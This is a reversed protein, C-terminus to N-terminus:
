ITIIVGNPGANILKTKELYDTKEFTEHVHGHIVIQPKTKKIAQKVGKNGIHFGIWDQKTRHPPEHVIMIKKELQSIPEHAKTLIETITEDSLGWQGLSTGAHGYFGVNKIIMYYGNLDHVNEYIQALFKILEPSDHNGPIILIPKGLDNLPKLLGPVTKGFITLDGSIIIADVNEKRAKEVAKETKEKDGHLDSLALIKM